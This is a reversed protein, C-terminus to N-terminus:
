HEPQLILIFEEDGKQFSPETLIKLINGKYLEDEGEMLAKRNLLGAIALASLSPIAVSEDFSQSVVKLENNAQLEPLSRKISIRYDHGRENARLATIEVFLGITENSKPEKGGRFVLATQGSTLPRSDQALTRFGRESNLAELRTKFQPVVAASYRGIELRGESEINLRDIAERSASAFRVSMTSEQTAPKSAEPQSAKSELTVPSPANNVDASNFRLQARPPESKTIVDTALTENAKPITEETLSGASAGPSAGPQPSATVYTEESNERSKKILFYSSALLTFILITGYLATSSM